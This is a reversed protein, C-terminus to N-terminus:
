PNPDGYPIRIAIKTGARSSSKLKVTLSSGFSLKLRQVCNYIGYFKSQSVEKDELIDQIMKQIDALILLPIGQGNDAIVILASNGDIKGSIQLRGGAEKTLLGHTLANEVFPQLSFLPIRLHLLEPSIKVTYKLRDGFRIQNIYLYDEIYNIEQQLNILSNEESFHVRFM